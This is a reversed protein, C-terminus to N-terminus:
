ITSQFPRSLSGVRCARLRHLGSSSERLNRQSMAPNMQSTSRRNSCHWGVFHPLNCHGQFDTKHQRQSSHNHITHAVIVIRLLSNPQHLLRLLHNGFRTSTRGSGNHHPVRFKSKHHTIDSNQHSNRHHTHHIHSKHTGKTVPASCLPVRRRLLVRKRQFLM